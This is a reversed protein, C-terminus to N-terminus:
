EKRGTLIDKYSKVNIKREVKSPENREFPLNEYKRLAANSQETHMEVFEVGKRGNLKQVLDGGPQLQIENIRRLEECGVVKTKTRLEVNIGGSYNKLCEKTIPVLTDPTLLMVETTHKNMKCFAVNTKIGVKSDTIESPDIHGEILFSKM